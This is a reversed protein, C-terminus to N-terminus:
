LKIWQVLQSIFRSFANIICSGFLFILLLMFFHDPLPQMDLSGSGAFDIVGLFVRLQKITQLLPFHLIPNIQEHSLSCIQGKLVVSLHGASPMISDKEKFVRYGRSALFNLLSETV